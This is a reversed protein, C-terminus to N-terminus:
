LSGDCSAMDSPPLYFPVIANQTPDHTGVKNLDAIDTFRTGGGGVERHRTQVKPLRPFSSPHHSAVVQTLGPAVPSKIWMCSGPALLAM